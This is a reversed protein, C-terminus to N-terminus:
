LDVTLLLPALRDSGFPSGGTGGLSCPGFLGCLQAERTGSWRLPMGNQRSVAKAIREGRGELADAFRNLADARALPDWRSWSRPDDFADRAVEVAVDADSVDADSVDADSVDADSVDADSVDADSVDADSVDADSVFGIIRETLPSIVPTRVKSHPARRGGAVFVKDQEVFM